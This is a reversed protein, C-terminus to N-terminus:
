VQKTLAAYYFGDMGATGPFIQLGHGTQLAGDLALPEASADTHRELFQAVQQENEQPWISCTAYLMRGGPSLTQWLQDMLEAQLIVLKDLDAPSRHLKIDPHRRVVGTASCPADLLIRDFPVKDWWTDTDRADASVLEAKLGGRKLNDAVLALREPDSDLAILDLSAQELLHMTKGGPAACADLVKYGEAVALFSAALQAAADQVSCDGSAFGPIQEVKVAQELVVATSVLPHATAPIGTEDLQELLATRSTKEVAVRLTLPAPAVSAAAIDQWQEPWAQQLNELWYQPLNYKAEANADLKVAIEDTERLYRRMTANAMGAAWRYHRKINDVSEAVLAHSATKGDICEFLAVRLLCELFHDKRRIPKHLLYELLASIRYHQRLAGYSLAQVTARQVEPLGSQIEPLARSLSEGDLVRKVVTAAATRSSM